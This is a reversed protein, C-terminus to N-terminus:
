KKRGGKTFLPADKVRGAKLDEFWARVDEGTLFRGAEIDAEGERVDCLQAYEREVFERVALAILYSRTRDTARALEDLQALIENEVRANVTTTQKTKDYKTTVSMFVVYWM